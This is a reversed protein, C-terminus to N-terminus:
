SGFHTHNKTVVFITELAFPLYSTSCMLILFSMNSMFLKEQLFKHVKGTKTLKKFSFLEFETIKENENEATLLLLFIVFYISM